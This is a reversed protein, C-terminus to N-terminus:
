YMKVNVSGEHLLVMYAQVKIYGMKGLIEKYLNLQTEYESRYEGTKYDIVSAVNESVVVRDPRYIDGKFCIDMENYVDNKGYFCKNLIPHGLVSLVYNYADEGSRGEISHQQWRRDINKKVRAMTDEEVVSIDSLIDHMFCGWVVASDEDKKNSLFVPEFSSQWDSYACNSYVMGKYINESTADMSENLGLGMAGEIRLGEKQICVEQKKTLVPVNENYAPHKEVFAQWIQNEAYANSKYTEKSLVYLKQAARTTTVYLANVKDVIAKVREEEALKRELLGGGLKSADGVSVLAAKLKNSGQVNFINKDFKTWLLGEIKPADSAFAYIVVPYELGKSKHVTTIRVANSEAASTKVMCKQGYGDETWHNIFDIESSSEFNQIEDLLTLVYQDSSQRLKWFRLIQQVKDYLNIGRESLNKLYSLSGQIYCDEGWMQRIFWSLRLKFNAHGPASMYRLAALLLRVELSSEVLLSRDTSVKYGALVLENAILGVMKNRSCLVAVDSPSHEKLIDKIRRINWEQYTETRVDELNGDDINGDMVNGAGGQETNGLGEATISDKAKETIYLSIRVKSADEQPYQSLNNKYYQEHNEYIRRLQSVVEDWGEEVAKIPPAYEHKIFDYFLNNFAVMGPESRWNSPLQWNQAICSDEKLSLMQEVNAGRFRYISQKPDGVVMNWFGSARNNDILPLINQWQLTSTDQFEDVLIHRFVSGVREYLYPIDTDKILDYIKNNFESIPVKSEAEQLQQKYKEARNMLALAYLHKELAFSLSYSDLGISQMEEYLQKLGMAQSYLGKELYEKKLFDVQYANTWNKSDKNKLFFRLVEGGLSFKKEFFMWFGTGMKYFHKSTLNNASILSQMKKYIQLASAEREKRMQIFGEISAIFDHESCLSLSKLYPQSQEKFAFDLIDVISAEINMKGKNEVEAMEKIFGELIQSQVEKGERGYDDLLANTINKVWSSTEIDAEYNRPLGLEFAFPRVVSQVFSDITKVSFSGYHHLLFCLVESAREQLVDVEIGCSCALEEVGSYKGDKVLALTEMIKRKMDSAAANTFTIALIKGAQLPDWKVNQAQTKVSLGIYEETLKYTKGSGASATYVGIKNGSRKSEMKIRNKNFRYVETIDRM